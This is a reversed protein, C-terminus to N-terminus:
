AGEGGNGWRACLDWLDSCANTDAGSGCRCGRELRICESCVSM